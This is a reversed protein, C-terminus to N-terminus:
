SCNGPDGGVDAHTVKVDVVDNYGTVQFITAHDFDCIMLIDSVVIDTAAANIEIEALGLDHNEVSLGAGEVGQLLIAGTGAVRQGIGAGFAMAPAATVGDYGQTGVWDQWWLGDPNLTSDIRNTNGCGTAAAQRIDRALLEFATRASEQVQSLAENTRYTQRNAAIVSIVGGVVILGLVMAIMLEVLTLGSQKRGPSQM